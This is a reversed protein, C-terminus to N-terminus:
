KMPEVHVSVDSIGHPISALFTPTSSPLVQAVAAEVAADFHHEDLSGWTSCLLTGGPRLQGPDYPVRMRVGGADVHEVRYARPAGPFADSLFRDMEEVTM